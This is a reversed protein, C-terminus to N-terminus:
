AAAELGLRATVVSIDKFNCIKNLMSDYLWIDVSRVMVMQPNRNNPKMSMLTVKVTAVENQYTSTARKAFFNRMEDYRAHIEQYGYKSPLSPQSIFDPVAVAQTSGMSHHKTKSASGFPRAPWQVASGSPCTSGAPWPGLRGVPTSTKDRNHQM